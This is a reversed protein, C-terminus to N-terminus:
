DALWDFLKKAGYLAASGIAIPAALPTSTALTLSTAIIAITQPNFPLARTVTSTIATERSPYAVPMTEQPVRPLQPIVQSSISLGAEVLTHIQASYHFGQICWTTFHECNNLLTSYHAEGLRSWAREVSQEPSYRRLRHPVIYCPHGNQFVDLSTLVVPGSEEGCSHGAYHIVEQNGIYLGHHQYGTRVSVLHDGPQPSLM